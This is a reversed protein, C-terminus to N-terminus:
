MICCKRHSKKIKGYVKIIVAYLFHCVYIGANLPKINYVTLTNMANDNKQVVVTNEPLRGDEFEWYALEGLKCFFMKTEGISAM